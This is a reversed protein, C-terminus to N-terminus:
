NVMVYLCLCLQYLQDVVILCFCCLYCGLSVGVGEVCVYVEKVFRLDVYFFEFSFQM